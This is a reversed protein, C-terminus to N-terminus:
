ELEQSQLFSLTLLLHLSYADTLSINARNILIGSAAM